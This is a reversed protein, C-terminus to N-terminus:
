SRNSHNLGAFTRNQYIDPIGCVRWETPNGPGCAHFRWLGGVGSAFEFPAPMEAEPLDALALWLVYDGPAAPFPPDRKLEARQKGPM